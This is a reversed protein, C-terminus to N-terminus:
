GSGRLAGVYSQTCEVPKLKGQPVFPGQFSKGRKTANKRLRNLRHANTRGGACEGYRCARVTTSCFM